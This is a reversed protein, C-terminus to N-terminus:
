NLGTPRSCWREAITSRRISLARRVHTSGSSSCITYKQTQQNNPQNQIQSL